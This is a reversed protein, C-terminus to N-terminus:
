NKKGFRRRNYGLLGFLGAGMLLMTSPEPVPSAATNVEMAVRDIRFDNQINSWSNTARVVVNGWGFEAFTSLVTPTFDYVFNWTESNTGEWTFTGLNLIANQKDRDYAELTIRTREKDQDTSWLDAYLTASDWEGFAGAADQTLSLSSDTTAWGGNTYWMDFEFSFRDGEYVAQQGTYEEYFLDANASGAIGLILMSIYLFTKRM